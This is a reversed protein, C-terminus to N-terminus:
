EYNAISSEIKNIDSKLQNKKRLKAFTQDILEVLNLIETKEFSKIPPLNFRHINYKYPFKPFSNKTLLLREISNNKGLFIKNMKKLFLLNVVANILKLSFEINSDLRLECKPSILNKLEELHGQSFDYKLQSLFQAIKGLRCLSPPFSKIMPLRKIFSGNYRLYGSSMHLSGFLSNFINNILHSNLVSLLGFYQEATFEPIKIFYLGTLNAFLGPDYSCTMKQAIERYILKEGRLDEWIKNYEKKFQFYSVNIRQRALKITKEFKIHYKGVNGTGLILLDKFSQREKSVNELHKTYNLFGFPRYIVKIKKFTLSLPDHYTYLDKIFQIKKTLPIVYSPLKQISSQKISIKNFKEISFPYEDPKIISFQNKPKIKNSLTIIIPYISKGLFIPLHSLNFIKEINLKKYLFKRIKIGYDAALFKNTMLFSIYGNDPKLFPLSRELFLISLDFLKYATEFHKYLKKKYKADKLKKNEIYPPNGIVLSFQTYDEYDFLYDGHFINIKQSSKKFIREVEDFPIIEDSERQFKIFKELNSDIWGLLRLKSILYAKREIECGFINNKIILNKIESHKLNPFLVKYIKFLEKCAAILFRGTGCAPDLIKFSNIKQRFVQSLLPSNELNIKPDVKEEFNMLETLSNKLYLNIADKVMFETIYPPTYVRGSLKSEREEILKENEFKNIITAIRNKNEKM